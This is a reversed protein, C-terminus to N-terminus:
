HWQFKRKKSKCDRCCPDKLQRWQWATFENKTKETKYCFCLKSLKRYKARHQEESMSDIYHKHAVQYTKKKADEKVARIQMQQM